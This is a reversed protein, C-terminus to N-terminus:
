FSGALCSWRARLHSVCVHDHRRGACDGRVAVFLVIAVSLLVRACVDAFPTSFVIRKSAAPVQASDIGAIIAAEWPLM